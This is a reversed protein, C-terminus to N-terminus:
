SVDHNQAELFKEKKVKTSPASLHQVESIEEEESTQAFLIDGTGIM